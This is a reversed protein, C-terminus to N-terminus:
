HEPVKTEKGKGGGRKPIRKLPYERGEKEKLTLDGLKHSSRRRKGAKKRGSSSLSKKEKKRNPKQYVRGISKERHLGSANDLRVTVKGGFFSNSNGTEPPKTRLDKTSLGKRKLL